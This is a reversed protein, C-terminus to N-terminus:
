KPKSGILICMLNVQYKEDDSIVLKGQGHFGTSGTSFNKANLIFPYENDRFKITAIMNEGM